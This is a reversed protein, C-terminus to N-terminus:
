QSLRDLINRTIREVARDRGRLGNAWETCGTTFVTGGRTYIGMVAAGPQRQVRTSREGYLAKSVLDLSDDAVSLEAPSTALIEFTEPTGDRGTSLPLGGQMEFDCGDCEYGIVRDRAGLRDGRKLHTGEFVWHDPRHIEYAGDGDHYKDFFAYYGGYAFSVGTLRNEPRDILHHCWLTSLQKHDGNLYLPDQKHDKWCVLARGNDESRVQWMANNGSFFAVNGGRDIFAELHDRRPSSWYEDHGVSLVLRYHELLEPHFELDSNVAYDFRYGARESWAVFSQEWNRWSSQRYTFGDYLRIQGGELRAECTSGPQNIYWFRGLQAVQIFTHPSLVIGGQDRFVSRLEYSVVRGDLTHCLRKPITSLFNRNVAFGADPRDFSGRTAPGDPGSYLTSGGWSNYANDTNTTRQLLIRSNRGPHASRVM